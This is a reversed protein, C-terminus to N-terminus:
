SDPVSIADDLMRLPGAERIAAGAGASCMQAWGRDRLEGCYCDQRPPTAIDRQSQFPEGNAIRPSTAAQLSAGCTLGTLGLKLTVPGGHSMKSIQLCPVLAVNSTVSLFLLM